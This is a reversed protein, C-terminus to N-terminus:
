RLRPLKQFVDAAAAKMDAQRGVSVEDSLLRWANKFIIPSVSEMRDVEGVEWAKTGVKMAEAIVADRDQLTPARFVVSTLVRYSDVFPRMIEVYWNLEDITEYPIRLRGEERVLLGREVMRDVTRTRAGVMSVWKDYVFEFRFIRLFDMSRRHLDTENIYGREALSTAATAVVAEPLFFHIIANKYYELWVRRKEVVSIISEFGVGSITVAKDRAFVGLTEDVLADMATIRRSDRDEPVPRELEGTVRWDLVVTRWAGTARAGELPVVASRLRESLLGGRDAIRTALDAVQEVLMPRPIGRGRNTMLVFAVLNQPTVVLQANIDSMMMYGLRRVVIQPVAADSEVPISVGQSELYSRLSLPEGFQMYLKGFRSGIDRARNLIHGVSVRQVGSEAGMRERDFLTGEVIREYTVSCPVLWADPAAGTAVAGVVMSLMEDRPTQLKGSRSRSGEIFFELWYGEKVLKRVYQRLTREYMLNDAIRPRVFFAGSRRIFPKFVNLRRQERVAVHPPILSNTYFVFSYAFYDFISRRSPLLVVPAERGTERIRALGPIDVSMGTFRRQFIIGLVVGFAELWNLRFDAALKRLWVRARKESATRGLGSIAGAEAIGDVFGRNRMIEDVMVRRGKLVPGRIARSERLFEESIAFKLRAALGDPNPSDEGALFEAINIPKGVLARARRFNRLFSVVKRIAGPAQPDGFVYNLISRRYSEPQQEWVLLLPILMIPRSLGEQIQVLDRLYSIRYEAGWQTLARPKKLFILCPRGARLAAQMMDSDPLRRRRRGRIGALLRRIFRSVPQFLVMSIENAFFVLPLGFRAFAYNFYLYDLRSHANIVYVPTGVDCAERIAHVSSEDFTVAGFFTRGFWRLFRGHQGVMASDSIVERGSGPDIVRVEGPMGANRASNMLWWAPGPQPVPALRAVRALQRGTCSLVWIM